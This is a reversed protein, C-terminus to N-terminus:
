APRIKLHGKSILDEIVPQDYDITRMEAGKQITIVRDCREVVVFVKVGGDRLRRYEAVTLPPDDPKSRMLLAVSAELAACREELATFRAEHDLDPRTKKDDKSM